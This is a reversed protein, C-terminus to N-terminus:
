SLRRRLRWVSLLTYFVVAFSYSVIGAGVALPMLRDGSFWLLSGGVGAILLAEALVCFLHLGASAHRIREVMWARYTEEGLSRMLWAQQFNRAAVLLSITAIIIALLPWLAAGICVALTFLAGWKWGLRRALPNAELVLNPTAIWTSLMDMGRSLVLLGLCGFYEGSGLPVPDM